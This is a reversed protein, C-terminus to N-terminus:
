ATGAQLGAEAPCLGPQPGLQAVLQGRSRPCSEKGPPVGKGKQTSLAEEWLPKSSQVLCLHCHTHYMTSALTSGTQSGSAPSRPLLVPCSHLLREALCRARTLRRPSVRETGGQRSQLSPSAKAFRSNLTHTSILSSRISLSEKKKLTILVEQAQIGGRCRINLRIVKFM